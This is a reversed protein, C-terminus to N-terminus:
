KKVSTRLGLCSLIFPIMLLAESLRIWVITMSDLFIYLSAGSLFFTWAFSDGFIRLLCIGAFLAFLTRQEKNWIAFLIAVVFLIYDFMPFPFIWTGFEIFLSSSYAFVILVSILIARSEKTM